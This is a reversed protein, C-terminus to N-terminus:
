RGRESLTVVPTHREIVASMSTTSLKDLDYTLTEFDSPYAGATFVTVHFGATDAVGFITEGVESNWREAEAMGVAKGALRRNSQMWGTEGLYGEVGYEKCWDAARQLEQRVRDRHNRFGMRISHANEEAFTRTFLGENGWDPYYHLELFSKEIPDAIWWGDPHNTYINQAGSWGDAAVSYWGKYGAARGALVARRSAREWTSGFDVAGHVVRDVYIISPTVSDNGHVDLRLVASARHSTDNYNSSAILRLRVIRGKPVAVRASSPSTGSRGPARPILLQAHWGGDTSEPIFVDCALTDGAKLCMRDFGEGGLLRFTSPTRGTSKRLVAEARLAASGTMGPFTGLTLRSSSNAEIRWRQNGKGFDSTARISNAVAHPLDHPENTLSLAHLASHGQLRAAVRAHFDEFCELPYDRNGLTVERSGVYFRGYNHWDINVLLGAHRADDLVAIVEAVGEEQLPGMLLPQLREQRFAVRIYRTGRQALYRMESLTPFDSNAGSAYSNTDKSADVAGFEGGSLTVGRLVPSAAPRSSRGNVPRTSGFDGAVEGKEREVTLRPKFATESGAGVALAASNLLFRRRHLVM